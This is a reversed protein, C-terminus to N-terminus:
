ARERQPVRWNLCQRWRLSWVCPCTLAIHLAVIVISLKQVDTYKLCTDCAHLLDSGNFCKCPNQHHGERLSCQPLVRAQRVQGVVAIIIIVRIKGHSYARPLLASKFSVMCPLQRGFHTGSHAWTRQKGVRMAFLFLTTLARLMCHDQRSM